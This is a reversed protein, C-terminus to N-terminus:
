VELGGVLRRIDQWASQLDSILPLSARAILVKELDIPALLLYEEGFPGRAIIQGMPDSISSGGVLGKGGEFGTLQCNVCYVGHEESVAAIMREYHALNAISPGSFGRAPSASPILILHAGAVATLTPLVSHWIDECLLIGLRGFRCNFVGLDHGRSVFREEDFVGYTPLFFKKYVHVIKNEQNGLQMYAAANYLNGGESQYFGVVVDVPKSLKNQLRKILGAVLAESSLASEVVGGELFYATTAAEPFVVLDAGEDAAQVTSEAIKDLNVEVRAKEPAIQACAVTIPM